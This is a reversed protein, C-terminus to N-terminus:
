TVLILRRAEWARREREVAERRRRQLEAERRQREWAAYVLAPVM